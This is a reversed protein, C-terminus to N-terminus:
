NFQLEGQQKEKRLFLSQLNEGKSFHLINQQDPYLETLLSSRLRVRSFEPRPSSELYVWIVDDELEYGLLQLPCIEDDLSISLGALVYTELVSLLSEDLPMSFHTDPAFKLALELDDIFFKSSVEIRKSSANWHIDTLSVYFKHEATPTYILCLLLLWKM